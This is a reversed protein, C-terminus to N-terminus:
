RRGKRIQYILIGDYVSLVVILVLGCLGQLAQVWFLADAEM